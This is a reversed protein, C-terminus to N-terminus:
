RNQPARTRKAAVSERYMNLFRPSTLRRKVDVTRPRPDPFTIWIEAVEHQAFHEGIQQVYARLFAVNHLGQEQATLSGRWIRAGKIDIGIFNKEPYHAALGVTYEGRGCGIELVIPHDNGFIEQGWKGQLKGFQDKGPEIVNRSAANAAFRALKQRSM